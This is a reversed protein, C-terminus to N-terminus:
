APEFGTPVEMNKPTKRQKKFYSAIYKEFQVQTMNFKERELSKKQMPTLERLIEEEHNRTPSYETMPKRILSPNEKPSPEKRLSYSEDFLGTKRPIDPVVSELSDEVIIPDQTFPRKEDSGLKSLEKELELSSLAPQSHVVYTKVGQWPKFYSRNRDEAIFKQVSGQIPTTEWCLFGHDYLTKVSDKIDKHVTKINKFSCDISLIFQNKFYELALYNMIKSTKKAFSLLIDPHLTIINLDQSPIQSYIQSLQVLAHISYSSRIELIGDQSLSVSEFPCFTEIKRVQNPTKKMLHFPSEFFKLILSYKKHIDGLTGKVYKKLDITISKSTRNELGFQTIESFISFICFVDFPVASSMFYPPYAIKELALMHSKLIIGQVFWLPLMLRKKHNSSLVLSQSSNDHIAM